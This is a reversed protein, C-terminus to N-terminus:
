DPPAAGTADLHVFTKRKCDQTRMHRRLTYVDSFSRNCRSCCYPREETHHKMHYKLPTSLMFRKGCVPCGYPREGTHTRLHIKMDSSAAFAKRCVRCSYPKEGSHTRLHRIMSSTINFRKGCVHCRHPKEGTHTRMHIEMNSKRSFRKGCVRCGFPKEGTHTRTHVELEVRRRFTKSCFGCAHIKLHTQLHELLSRRDPQPAGCVGCRRREDEGHVEAHNRLSGHYSFTMGCVKCSIAGGGGEGGAGSPPAEGGECSTSPQADDEELEEELEVELEVADESDADPQESKLEELPAGGGESEEEQKVVPSEAEQGDGHLCGADAHAAGRSWAAERAPSPKGDGPRDRDRGRDRYRDLLLQDRQELVAREVLQLIEEAAAALRQAVLARLQQLGSMTGSVSTGSM